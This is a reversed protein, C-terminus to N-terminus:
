NQLTFAPSTIADHGDLCHDATLFLPRADNIFSYPLEDTSIQGNLNTCIACVTLMFLLKIRKM